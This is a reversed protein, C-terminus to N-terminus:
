QKLLRLMKGEKTQDIHWLSNSSYVNYTRRSIACSRRQAVIAPSVRILSEHVRKRTVHINISRLHGWMMVIGNQPYSRVLLEMVSDLEDDTIMNYRSFDLGLENLHRWLTTRSVMLVDAIESWTYRLKRLFEIERM